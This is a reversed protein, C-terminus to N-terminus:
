RGEIQALPPFQFEVFESQTILYIRGVKEDLIVRANKLDRSKLGKTSFERQIKAHAVPNLDSNLILLLRNGKTIGSELDAKFSDGVCFYYDQDDDCAIPDSLGYYVRKLEKLHEPQSEVDSESKYLVGGVMVLRIDGWKKLFGSSLATCSIRKEAISSSTEELLVCFKESNSRKPSECFIISKGDRSLNISSMMSPNTEPEPQWLIEGDSCRIVSLIDSSDASTKVLLRTGDESFVAFEIPSTGFDKLLVGSREYLAKTTLNRNPLFHGHTLFLQGSNSIIFYEVPKIDVRTGQSWPIGPFSPNNKAVDNKNQIEKTPPEWLINGQHDLLFFRSQILEYGIFQQLMNIGVYKHNTSLRVDCVFTLPDGKDSTFRFEIKRHAHNNQSYYPDLREVGIMLENLYSNDFTGSYDPNYGDKIRKIFARLCTEVTPSNVEIIQPESTISVESYEVKRILKLQDDLLLNNLGSALASLCFPLFILFIKAIIRM